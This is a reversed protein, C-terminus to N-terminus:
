INNQTTRYGTSRDVVNRVNGCSLYARLNELCMAKIRSTTAALHDGGSVHPTIYVNRASWLPHDPPLPEPDTVDLAAAGITGANLASVLAETDVADGRGVNILLADSKMLGLRRSDIIHRTEPTSPLSLAVIDADPLLGDMDQILHVSDFEQSPSTNHRRLGIVRCGLARMKRAFSSGIDGAGVVLVSAGEIPRVQGMDRWQRRLQNDYYMPLKKFISLAMAVMHESVAQGYAGSVNALLVDPRLRSIYADAGASRLQLFELSNMSAVLDPPPNGIVINANELIKIDACTIGSDSLFYVNNEGVASIFDDQEMESLELLCVITKVFNWVREM